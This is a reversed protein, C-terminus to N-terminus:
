SRHARHDSVGQQLGSQSPSFDASNAEAVEIGFKLLSGNQLPARNVLVGKAGPCGKEEERILKGGFVNMETRFYLGDGM